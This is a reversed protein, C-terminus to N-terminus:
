SQAFDISQLPDGAAMWTKSFFDVIGTTQGIRFDHSLEVVALTAM